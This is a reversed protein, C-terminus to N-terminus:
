PDSQSPKRRRGFLARLLGGPGSLERRSEAYHECFVCAGGEIHGLWVFLMPGHHFEYHYIKGELASEELRDLLTHVEGPIQPPLMRGGDQLARDVVRHGALIIEAFTSAHQAEWTASCQAHV